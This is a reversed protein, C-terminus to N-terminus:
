SFYGEYNVKIPCYWHVAFIFVVTSTSSFNPNLDKDSTDQQPFINLVDTTGWWEESSNSCLPDTSGLQDKYTLVHMAYSPIKPNMSRRQGTCVEQFNGSPRYLGIGMDQALLSM